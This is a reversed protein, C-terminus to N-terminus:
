ITTDVVSGPPVTRAVTNADAQGGNISQLAPLFDQRFQQPDVGAKQLAEQLPSQASSSTGGTTNTGEVSPATGESTGCTSSSGNGGLVQAIANQIIQNPDTITSGSSGNSQLASTVASAIKDFSGGKGGGHHHHHETGQV